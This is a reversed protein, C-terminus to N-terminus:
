SSSPCHRWLRLCWYAAVCMLPHGLLVACCFWVVVARSDVPFSVAVCLLRIGLCVYCFLWLPRLPLSFLLRSVIVLRTLHVNPSDRHAAASRACFSLCFRWGGLMGSGDLMWTLWSSRVEDKRDDEPDDDDAPVQTGHGSFHIFIIDDEEAETCLKTLCKRINAGTPILEDSCSGDDKLITIDSEDFGKYRQLVDSMIDVDIACCVFVAGLATSISPNARLEFRPRELEKFFFLLAFFCALIAGAM